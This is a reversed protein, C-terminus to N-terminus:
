RGYRARSNGTWKVKGRPALKAMGPVGTSRPAHDAGTAFPQRGGRADSGPAPLTADVERAVRRSPNLSAPLRTTCNEYPPRYEEQHAGSQDGQDLVLESEDDSSDEGSEDAEPEPVSAKEPNLSRRLQGRRGLLEGRRM